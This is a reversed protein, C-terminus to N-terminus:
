INPKPKPKTKFLIPILSRKPGSIDNRTFTKRCVPCSGRHKNKDVPPTPLRELCQMICSHCFLHGCTTATINECIDMCVPCTYSFLTSRGQQAKIADEQQRSIVRDIADLETLDLADVTDDLPSVPQDRKRKSTGTQPTRSIPTFTPTVTTSSASWEVAPPIPVVNNSSQSM